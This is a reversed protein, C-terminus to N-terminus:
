RENKVEQILKDVIIRGEKLFEPIKEWVPSTSFDAEYFSNNYPLFGIFDFDSLEERLKTKEKLQERNNIHYGLGLHIKFTTYSCSNVKLYIERYNRVARVIREIERM